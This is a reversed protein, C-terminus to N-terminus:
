KIQTVTYGMNELNKLISNDGFFHMVGLSVVYKQKEKALEDIKKAMQEDRKLYQEKYEKLNEEQLKKAQKEMYGTDGKIFAYMTENMQKTTDKLTKSDFTNVFSKFDQTSKKLIDVQTKNSELSIITKKEETFKDALYSNLSTGTLGAKEAEVQKILSLVGSPSLNKVEKYKIDLSELIKDLKVQEEKTLLDKLEKGELYIEKQQQEQLDKITKEDKLNIELALADTEKLIKKMTENNYDLNPKSPQMSATLYITDNGKKAEWSFGKMPVTSKKSSESQNSDKNTCGVGLVLIIIPIILLVLKKILKM